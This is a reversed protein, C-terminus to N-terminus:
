LGLGSIIFLDHIVHTMILIQLTPKSTEREVQTLWKM